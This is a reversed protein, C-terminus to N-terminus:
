QSMKSLIEEAEEMSNDEELDMIQERISRPKQGRRLKHTYHKEEIYLGLTLVVFLLSLGIAKEMTISDLSFIIQKIIAVIGVCIILATNVSGYKVFSRVVYFMELLILTFLGEQVASNINFAYLEKFVQFVELGAAVILAAGFLAAILQAIRQLTPMGDRIEKKM